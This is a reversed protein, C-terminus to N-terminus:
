QYFKSPTDSTSKIIDVFNPNKRNSLSYMKEENSIKKSVHNSNNGRAVFEHKDKKIKARCSHRDVEQNNSAPVVQPLISFEQALNIKSTTPNDVVTCDGKIERYIIIIEKLHDPFESGLEVTGTSHTITKQNELLKLM